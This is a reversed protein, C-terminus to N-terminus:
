TATGAEAKKQHPEREHDRIATQAADRAAEAEALEGELVSLASHDHKYAAMQHKSGIRLYRHL